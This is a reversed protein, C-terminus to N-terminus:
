TAFVTDAQTFTAGRAPLTSQFSLRLALLIEPFPDSGTRPAHISIPPPTQNKVRGRTAGRAPLTSQFETILGKLATWKPREGHPSRPNFNQKTAHKEEGFVDSGTRPAHISIEIDDTIFQEM